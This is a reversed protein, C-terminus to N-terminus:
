GKHTHAHTCALTHTHTHTHTHARARPRTHTYTYTHTYIYIHTHTHTHAHTRAHTRAHTQKSVSPKGYKTAVWLKVVTGSLLNSRKGDIGAFACRATVTELLANAFVFRRQFGCSWRIRFGLPFGTPVCIFSECCMMRGLLIPM